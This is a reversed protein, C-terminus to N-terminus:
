WVSKLSLRIMDNLKLLFTYSAVAFYKMSGSILNLDVPIMSYFDLGYGYIGVEREFLVDFLFDDEELKIRYEYDHPVDDTIPSRASFSIGLEYDKAHLMCCTVLLMCCITIIKKM